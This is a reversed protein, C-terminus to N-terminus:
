TTTGLGNRIEKAKNEYWFAKELDQEIPQGPKRGLRQRYKFATMECHAIFFEAGWIDLMMEWTEKSQGKYHPPTVFDYEKMITSIKNNDTLM